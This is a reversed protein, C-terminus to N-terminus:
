GMAAEFAEIRHRSLKASIDAKMLIDGNATNYSQVHDLNVIWSKQSRFFSATSPLVGEFYKLNKSVTLENQGLLYIETYSGNGRFCIIDKLQLVRKGTIEPIVIKRLEKQQMADLLVQYQQASQDRHTKAMLKELAMKLRDRSVPKVLYDIASLEFAKIAYQNYATVFIIEFDIEDIFEVLEYGAYIPMQIDLFVVDPQHVQIADVAEPVNSCTAVIEVPFNSMKILTGLVDVADKEDDVLIAKIPRM